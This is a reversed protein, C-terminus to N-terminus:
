KSSRGGWTRCAAIKVRKSAGMRWNPLAPHLPVYLLTSGSGDLVLETAASPSDAFMRMSLRVPRRHTVMVWQATVERWEGRRVSTPSTCARGLRRVESAGTVASDGVVGEVAVGLYEFAVRDMDQKQAGTFGAPDELDFGMSGYRAVARLYPGAFIQPAFNLHPRYSDRDIDGVAEIVALDARVIDTINELNWIGDRLLQVNPQVLLITMPVFLLTAPISTPRPVCALVAVILYTGGVYLYRSADPQYLDGRAYGALLWGMTMAVVPVITVADALVSRGRFLRYLLLAGAVGFVVVAFWRDRGGVAAAAHMASDYVYRPIIGVNGSSGQPDGFALLWVCYLAFVGSLMAVRRWARSVLAHVWFGALVPLGGGSSAVAAAVLVAVSADAHPKGDLVLIGAFAFTIPLIMQVQFGWVINMWGSGLLMVSVLATMGVLHGGHRSVVAYALLATAAHAGVSLLLFPVYSGTGFMELLGMFLVVPLAVFHGNHPRLVSGLDLSRDQIWSWEDFFFSLRDGTVVIWVSITAAVLMAFLGWPGPVATRGSSVGKDM